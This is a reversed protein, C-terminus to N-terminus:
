YFLLNTTNACKLLKEPKLRLLSMLVNKARKYNLNTRLHQYYRCM